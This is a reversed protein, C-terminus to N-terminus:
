SSRAPHRCQRSARPTVYRDDLDPRPTRHRSRAPPHSRRPRTPRLRQHSRAAEQTSNRQRGRCSQADYVSADAGMDLADAVLGMSRSILGITLEGIFFGANIVLAFILANRESSGRLDQIESNDDLHRAGLNLRQLASDIITPDTQHDIFVERQTLDFHIHDITDLDALAM